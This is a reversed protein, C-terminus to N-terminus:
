PTLAKVANARQAALQTRIDTRNQNYRADGATFLDRPYDADTGTLQRPTLFSGISYGADNRIYCPLDRSGDGVCIMELRADRSDTLPIRGGGVDYMTFVRGELPAAMRNALPIGLPPASINENYYVRDRDSNVYGSFELDGKTLVQMNCAASAGLGLAFAFNRMSRGLSYIGTKM